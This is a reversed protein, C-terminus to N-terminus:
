KFKVNLDLQVRDYDRSHGSAIDITNLFYTAAFFWSDHFAYTGKFISGKSDTGGGGFDSSTLLGIVADAELKQYIYAFDWTGRAKAKGFKFGFAYGKDNDDAAQNKVYDAFLSLPQGFADLALEAFGEIEHYDYLYTNTQPDFSNGFFDSDGFTSRKGASDIHYYGAGATLQISDGLPLSMGAQLGYAFEKLQKTNTSDLWTGIGSAFFRGDEYHISTGEPRWDGDWLLENGGAQHLPNKFKGGMIRTNKLGSWEFYALDLNIPKTSGGGGLTQNTSVPDDSGTALGFGVRMTDSVDARLLVRARIRNRNRDSGNEVEIGEYRYRFDGSWSLRETWSMASMKEDVRSAIVQDIKKDLVQTERGAVNERAHTSQATTRTKELQDLRESLLHIQERLARVENDSVEARSVPCSMLLVVGCLAIRFKM